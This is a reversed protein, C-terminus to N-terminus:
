AISELHSLRWYIKDVQSTLLKVHQGYQTSCLILWLPANSPKAKTDATLRNNNVSPIQKSAFLSTAPMKPACNMNCVSVNKMTFFRFLVARPFSRFAAAKPRAHLLKLVIASPANRHRCFPSVIKQCKKFMNPRTWIGFESKITYVVVSVIFRAINTPGSSFFLRCISSNALTLLSM